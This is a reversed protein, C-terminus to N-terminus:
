IKTMFFSKLAINSESLFNNILSNYYNYHYMEPLSNKLNEGEADFFLKNLNQPKIPLNIQFHSILLDGEAVQFYFSIIMSTKIDFIKNKNQLRIKALVICSDKSNATLNYDEEFVEFNEAFAKNAQFYKEVKDFGSIIENEKPTIVTINKKNFYNLLGPIDKEFYIKKISDKSIFIAKKLFYDQM